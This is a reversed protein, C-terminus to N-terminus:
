SRMRSFNGSLSTASLAIRAMITDLHLRPKPLLVLSSLFTSAALISAIATAKWYADSDPTVWIGTALLIFGAGSAVFGGMAAAQFRQRQLLASPAIASACFATLTLATLLLRGRTKTYEGLLAMAAIVLAAALLGALMGALFARPAVLGRITSAM